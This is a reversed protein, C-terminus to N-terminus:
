RNDRVSLVVCKRRLKEELLKSSSMHVFFCFVIKCVLDLRPPFSGITQLVCACSVIYAM